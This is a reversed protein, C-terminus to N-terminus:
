QKLLRYYCVSKDHLDFKIVYLGDSLQALPILLNDSNCNGANFVVKNSMDMLTIKDIQVAKPIQIKVYETAPNPFVSIGITEILDIASEDLQVSVQWNEVSGDVGEVQYILSSTFDLSSEGSVQIDGNVSAKAGPSLEFEPTFTSLDVQYDVILNVEKASLDIEAVGSQEPHSFSLFDTSSYTATEMWIFPNEASCVIANSQFLVQNELSIEQSDSKLLKFQIMDGSANNCYVTLLFLEFSGSHETPQTVGVCDDGVFAGLTANEDNILGDDLSVKGTLNMSFEFDAPDVTWDQASVSEVFILAVISLIVPIYKM